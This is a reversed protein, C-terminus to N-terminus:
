FVPTDGLQNLCRIRFGIDTPELGVVGALWDQLLRRFRSSGEPKKKGETKEREGKGQAKGPCVKIGNPAVAEPIGIQITNM